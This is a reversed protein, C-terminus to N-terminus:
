ATEQYRRLWCVVADAMRVALLRPQETQPYHGAEEILHLASRHAEASKELLAPPVLGDSAGGLFELPVGLQDLMRGHEATDFSDVHARYLPRDLRSLWESCRADDLAPPHHWSRGLLERLGTADRPCLLRSTPARGLRWDPWCVFLCGAVRANSRVAAALALAAGSSNGAVVLPAGNCGIADAIGAAWDYLISFPPTPGEAPGYGPPDFGLVRSTGHLRRALLLATRGFSAAVDGIAPFWVLSAPGSGLAFAPTAPDRRVSPHSM